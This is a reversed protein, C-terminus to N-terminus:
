LAIVLKVECIKRVWTFASFFQLDWKLTFRLVQKTSELVGGLVRYSGLKFIFSVDWIWAICCITCTSSVKVQHTTLRRLLCTLRDLCPLSILNMWSDSGILITDYTKLGNQPFLRVVFAGRTQEHVINRQIALCHFSERQDTHCIRNLLSDEPQYWCHCTDM